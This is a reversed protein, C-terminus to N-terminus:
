HTSQNIPSPQNPCGLVAFPGVVHNSIVYLSIQPDNETLLKKFFATGGVADADEKADKCREVLLYLLAPRMQCTYRPPLNVFIHYIIQIKIRRLLRLPVTIKGLLFLGAPSDDLQPLAFSDIRAQSAPPSGALSNASGSRSSNPSSNGAQGSSSRLEMDDSGGSGGSGGFVLGGSGNGNGSAGGIGGTRYRTASSPLIGLFGILTDFMLMLVVESREGLDVLKSMTDNLLDVM